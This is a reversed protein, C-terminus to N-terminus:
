LLADESFWKLMFCPAGRTLLFPHSELFLMLIPCDPILEPYNSLMINYILYFWDLVVNLLDLIFSFILILHVFVECLSKLKQM